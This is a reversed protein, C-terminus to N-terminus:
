ELMCGSEIDNLVARMNNKHRQVLKVYAPLPQGDLNEARAIELARAAFVPALGQNTLPITTCRSRFPGDYEGFIDESEETTTFIVCVKSPLRDLTTLWAQVARPTMAQAENVIWVRFGGSLARLSMMESAKRVADVTCSDGDLEIVDIPDGSLQRGICNAITTKGTGSPGVIWFAGGAFGDRGILRKLRDIAKPQGIVDDLTKPAYKNILKM